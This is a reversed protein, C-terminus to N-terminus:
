VPHPKPSRQGLLQAHGCRYRALFKSLQFPYVLTGLLAIPAFISLEGVRLRCCRHLCDPQPDATIFGHDIEPRIL